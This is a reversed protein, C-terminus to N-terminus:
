HGVDNARPRFGVDEAQGIHRSADTDEIGGHAMKTNLLLDLFVDRSGRAHCSHPAM